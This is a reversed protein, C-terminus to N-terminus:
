EKYLQKIFGSEELERVFQRDVFTEPDAGKAKPNTEAVTEIAALMGERVPHPIKQVKGVSGDYTSELVRKDETKTYKGLVSVSVPRNTRFVYIGEVMARMFNLVTARNSRIFSRTTIIAGTPYQFGAAGIDMLEKFGAERAHFDNPSSMPGGAIAGSQVAALIQAADMKVFAVDKEPELGMKKLAFRASSDTLTGLGGTGIVKGKLDEPRQINPTVMLFFIPSNFVVGIIVADAGGVSAAIAPAGASQPLIPVEGALMAQMATTGSAIYSLEASLGYKEFLREEKALWVPLGTAGLAQYVTKITTVTKTPTAVPKAAVVPTPSAPM